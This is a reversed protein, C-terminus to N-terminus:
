DARQLHRGALEAGDLSHRGLIVRVKYGLSRADLATFKLCFDLALGVVDAHVSRKGAIGSIYEGLGTSKGLFGYRAKIEASVRRGNDFFGSYSDVDANKGKQFIIAGKINLDDHFEASEDPHAAKEEASRNSPYGKVTPCGHKPWLTQQVGNLEVQEFAKKGPHMIAFSGHNEPHADQTLIVLDYNGKRKLENILAVVADADPVALGGGACFTKQVDVIILM